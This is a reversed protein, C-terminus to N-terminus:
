WMDFLLVVRDEETYNWVRVRIRDRIRVKVRVRVRGYIL